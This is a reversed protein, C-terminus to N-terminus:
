TQPSVIVTSFEVLEKLKHLSWNLKTFVEWIHCANGLSLLEHKRWSSPHGWLSWYLLLGSLSRPRVFQHHLCRPSHLLWSLGRPFTLLFWLLMSVDGMSRSSTVITAFNPMNLPSIPPPGLDLLLSCPPKWLCCSKLFTNIRKKNRWDM